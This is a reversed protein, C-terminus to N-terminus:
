WHRAKFGAPATLEFIEDHISATLFGADQAEEEVGRDWDVGALIGLLRKERHEPFFERFQEMIRRFQGIAERKVRSKVEVLMATNVEGNAYSLVDIEITEDKQRIKVRPMVVTMGFQESLIREMSPLAMGETFYGFKDGLGGIQRGLEEIMRETKQLRRDAEQFRQNTEQFKRDSEQLRRDAEKAQEKLMRDTEKFLSLVEEVTVTNM